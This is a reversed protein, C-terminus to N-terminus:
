FRLIKGTNLIKVTVNVNVTLDRFLNNWNNKLYSDWEKNHNIFFEYGFGFIDSNYQTQVKSITAELKSKLQKAILEEVEETINKNFMNDINTIKELSGTLHINVDVQPKKNKIETNIRCTNNSLLLSYDLNNEKYKVSGTINSRTKNNKILALHSSEVGNLVGILRTGKFIAFKDIKHQGEVQKVYGMSLPLKLPLKIEKEDKSNKEEDPKKEDKKGSTNADITKEVRIIPLSIEIGEFYLMKYLDGLTIPRIGGTGRTNNLLKEITETSTTDETPDRTAFIEFATNESVLIYASTRIRTTQELYSLIDKLNNQAMDKGIVFCRTYGLFLERNVYQQLMNLSEQFTNAYAINTHLHDSNSSEGLPASIKNTQDITTYIMKSDTDYDLGVGFILAMDEYETYDQCSCLLLALLVLTTLFRLKNM